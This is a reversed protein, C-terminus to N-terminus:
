IQEHGPNNEEFADVDASVPGETRADQGASQGFVPHHIDARGSSKDDSFWDALRLQAKFQAAMEGEFGFRHDTRRTVNDAQGRYLAKTFLCAARLCDAENANKGFSRPSQGDKREFQRGALIPQNAQDREMSPKRKTKVPSRSSGNPAKALQLLAKTSGEGGAVPVSERAEEFEQFASRSGDRTGNRRRRM